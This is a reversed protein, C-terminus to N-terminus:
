YSVPIVNWGHVNEKLANSKTKPTYHAVAKLSGNKEVKHITTRAGHLSVEYRTKKSKFVKNLPSESGPTVTASVRDVSNGRVHVKSWPMSTRQTLHSQLMKGIMQHGEEGVKDILHRMHKHFEKNVTEKSSKAAENAKQELSSNSKVKEKKRAAEIAARRQAATQDSFGLKKHVKSLERRSVKDTELKRSPHDLMGDLHIAPNKATIQGSKESSKLSFGEYHKEGKSKAKESGSVEVSVDSPNEQGDNHRGGTFRGIDGSKSTHGVGTIRATPGHNTRITNLIAGAAAKGHEIRVKVKAPDRGDSLRAIASKHPEIEELHEDSGYTGSAEHKHGILHLATSHETIKGATDPDFDKTVKELLYRELLSKPEDEDVGMRELEKKSPHKAGKSWFTLKTIAKLSNNYHVAHHGHENNMIHVHMEHGDKTKYKHHPKVGKFSHGKGFNENLSVSTWKSFGLLMSRLEKYTDVVRLM